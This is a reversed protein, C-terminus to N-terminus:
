YVSTPWEHILPLKIKPALKLKLFQTYGDTVLQYDGPELRYQKEFEELADDRFLHADIEISHLFKGCGIGGIKKGTSLKYLRWEKQEM